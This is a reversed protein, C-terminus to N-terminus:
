LPAVSPPYSPINTQLNVQSNIPPNLNNNFTQFINSSSIPKPEVSKNVYTSGPAIQSGERGVVLTPYPQEAQRTNESSYGYSQNTRCWNEIQSTGVENICNLHTPIWGECYTKIYQEFKLNAEAFTIKEHNGVYWYINPYKGSSENDTVQHLM